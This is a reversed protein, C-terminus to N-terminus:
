VEHLDRELISQLNGHRDFVGPEYNVTFGHMDVSDYHKDVSSAVEPCQEQSKCSVVIASPISSNRSTTSTTHPPAVELLLCFDRGPVEPRFVCVM